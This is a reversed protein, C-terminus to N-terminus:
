PTGSAVADPKLPLRVRSRDASQVTEIKATYSLHSFVSIYSCVRKDRTLLYTRVYMRIYTYRRANVNVRSSARPWCASRLRAPSTVRTTSNRTTARPSDGPRLLREGSKTSSYLPRPIHAATDLAQTWHCSRERNDATIDREGRTGRESRRRNGLSYVCRTCQRVM